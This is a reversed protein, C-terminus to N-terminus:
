GVGKLVADFWLIAAVGEKPVIETATRRHKIGNLLDAIL